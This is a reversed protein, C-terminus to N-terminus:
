GEKQENKKVAGGWQWDKLVQAQHPHEAGAYFKCKRMMDRGLPGKPLMRRIAERLAFTADRAQAEKFTREKLGGPYGTHRYYVKDTAKNGTVRIGKTNVVVVYDGWDADPCYQPKHKGQLVRAIESAVRGLVAGDVDVKYWDGSHLEPRAMTTDGM